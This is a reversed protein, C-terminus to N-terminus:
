SCVAMGLRLSPLLSGDRLNVGCKNQGAWQQEYLAGVVEARYCGSLVREEDTSADTCFSQWDAKLKSCQPHFGLNFHNWCRSAGMYCHRKWLDPNTVCAKQDDLLRRYGTGFAITPPSESANLPHSTAQHPLLHHLVIPLLITIAKM